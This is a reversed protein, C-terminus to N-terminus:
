RFDLALRTSALTEMAHGCSQTSRMYTPRKWCHKAMAPGAGGTAFCARGVGVERAVSLSQASANSGAAELLTPRHSLLLDAAELLAEGDGPGSRGNGLVEAALEGSLSMGETRSGEGPATGDAHPWM